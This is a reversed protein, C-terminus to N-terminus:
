PTEVRFVMAEAAQFENSNRLGVSLADFTDPGHWLTTTLIEGTRTMLVATSIYQQSYIQKFAAAFNPQKSM